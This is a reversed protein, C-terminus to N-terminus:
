LSTQRSFIFILLVHGAFFSVGGVTFWLDGKLMLLVDGLWCAAFAAILLWDPNPSTRFCCYLCLLLLLMPKTVGFLIKSNKLSAALNLGAAILFLILFIYSPM